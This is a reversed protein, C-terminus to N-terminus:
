AVWVWRAYEFTYFVLMIAGTALVLQRLLRRESLWDAAAMWLPFLMLAYRDFAHLPNGIVPSSTTVLLVLAAYLAYAKPLRRWAGVLAVVCIGLVVLYAFSQFGTSYPGYISPNIPATGHLTQWLGTFGASLARVVTVVPGTFQHSYAHDQENASPALWGFGQGHLYFLFAGLALLPLLLSASELCVLERLRRSRGRSQWYMLALPAVLLIGEVHTLAAGAALAGAPWFRQHRACYFAGVALALFLSETYIATFFFSLPAFALLLVTIDATRGGLEEQTLRHLLVLAVGFAVISIAIGAIVDSGVIWALVHILLPYLPFFVTTQGSTYGHQAIAIYHVGDWRDASAALVNGVRGLGLTLGTPDFRRWSPMSTMLGGAVGAAVALVRSCIVAAWLSPRIGAWSGGRASARAASAITAM